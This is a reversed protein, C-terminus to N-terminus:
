RLKFEEILAPRSALLMELHSEPWMEIRLASDSQNNKEILSIADSTFRGSTAIVHVDVRPPEWLKMQGQLEKIDSVSISKELWHKCQIIVRLRIIGGLSDRIVREVSLDRGRDPAKTRTLWQANEYGQESNVLSFILREFQEFSLQKWRLERTVSGSPKQDVLQSLDKVQTPIPENAGYMNRQLFEKVTPWDFQQIDHFDGLMAFHLHRHLDPWREPRKISSGLLTDIQEIYNKLKEWEKGEMSMSQKATSDRKQEIIRISADVSDILKLLVDRILEKRKQNLLFRYERLEIGPKEIENEVSIIADIEGIDNADLRSQAIDNLGWHLATPKWNNITPLYSLIAKYSRCKDEYTVDSGFSIGKPISSEIEKSLRELKILNAEAVDFHRLTSALTNEQKIDSMNTEFKIFTKASLAPNSGAIFKRGYM